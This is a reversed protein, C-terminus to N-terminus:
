AFKNCEFAKGSCLLNLDSDSLHTIMSELKDIDLFANSRDGLFLNIKQLLSIHVDNVVEVAYDKPKICPTYKIETKHTVPKDGPKIVQVPPLEDIFGIRKNTLYSLFTISKVTGRILSAPLTCDTLILHHIASDETVIIYTQDTIATYIRIQPEKNEKIKLTLVEGEKPLFKLDPIWPSSTSSIDVVKRM